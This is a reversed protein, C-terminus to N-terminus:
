PSTRLPDQASDGPRVPEHDPGGPGPAHDGARWLRAYHGDRALLEAHAGDEVVRGGDVVVIRDARAATGLRHAVVFTTRRAALRDSASVVLSETAPDLAATAEDLLLLDPRVLEARALAVLQRQGASLERGREGVQQRFGRRLMAIGPLAGVDRAAAEVEADSASPRGYAINAAVDGAFLYGEQPVVALRHHFGSLEYRRVDVGDVLLEGDTVDYFRALLKVLTSKGAGTPGVLAVTTGPEVRLSVERLADREAGPYRFSVSRLEVAGALRDPVAVPAADQPVSTPTRLLDGIRRLGVRAQQYGDFVGSLQQVPSFFMGLYLLFAVLVGATLEGSAVRTAGVGLVAAQALESLLATFPFYTAIYRQARLRSRRYADSRQAFVKASYRERRHAQAVRLGSVNEQLDANVTSVRERAEAYATSSVRRFIVTAVVLPPLVALAVLALSLDTVLLAVAIGVITFASVVATALGTQLFSSLADVDTTMRTMIRGALEREYYDLGLRQLHAYSRVRLLYLLTEGTRATVVTQVKIVLWSVLVIVAGVATVLWLTGPDRADVGGDVGHRVLSPLAVSGLADAAVLLVTLALGWRIPRLLRALRFGPDPATADVGSLRPAAVAPPLARLGEALEPTLPTAAGSGGRTGRVGGPVAVARTREPEEAAPWLEATPAADAPVPDPEAAGAADIEEGPGALLSRFLGCRERLEEQTGVDVVRGADLVAVRDALALTSRRHAILLTTRQATVSRLTDHIAAETAPDVASTADDLVLIRPDSLLARALAVRQRQGGSLTLGREGVLTGYGEPLAAIFGHAEAARAAAEVEADTADPCGYAINGRISDSFLFAEEFVVGVASRLSELRLDRVDHEAGGDAAGIRVAGHQVDYFRPLLLSVTSKGSGAPGVLAVTEGPEVLLSVDRLVQQDRTYGFGVGDLRVRLPVEPLAVAGPRDRVDPRSDILDTIREMGARTLQGQVLVSAMMRAPGGLMAVYAAFAVFTGLGVQGHLAMWGGLGLVGVQGAAPLVSLSAQPLSTMRATRLREAFLRRAGSELRAVERAEQGFGKVVRVGSVTEEVHQAIDAARQQASWTAPFLRKKSRASVAAILPVVVLVVSTLLPSLWVMAVLAFAMLVVTGAALPVMSLLANVLQLDSIARSAVQGTRLADQKGGDLRQVSGFVARRLDHQVDLALRGASYRRVFAAGFRFMGLGALAAAFWWLRDTGGAVAGDVAAKTILPVLAELGVAAVSAGLALLM